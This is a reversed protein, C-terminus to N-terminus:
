KKRVFHSEISATDLAIATGNIGGGIVCIDYSDSM